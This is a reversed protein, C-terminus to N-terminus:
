AAIPQSAALDSGPHSQGPGPTPPLVLVGRGPRGQKGTNKPETRQILGLVELAFTQDNAVKHSLAGLGQGMLMLWKSSPIIEGARDNMMLYHHLDAHFARLRDERAVGSPHKGM